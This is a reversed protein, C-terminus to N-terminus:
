VKGISINLGSSWHPSHACTKKGELRRAERNVVQTFMALDLLQGKPIWIKIHKTRRTFRSIGRYRFRSYYVTIDVGVPSCKHARIGAAFFKRLDSLSYRTYNVVKM